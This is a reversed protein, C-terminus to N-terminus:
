LGNYCFALAILIKANIWRRVRTLNRVWGPLHDLGVVSGALRSFVREILTRRAYLAPGFARDPSELMEIARMRAEGKCREDVNQKPNKRPAVMQVGRAAVLGYLETSDYIADGLLYGPGDIHKILERAVTPEGAKMTEVRWAVPVGAADILLFLKYGLAKGGCCYGVTADKVKSYRNIAFGKADVVWCGVMTAAVLVREQLHRLALALLAQVSADRLRRSVRSPSPLPGRWVRPRNRRDCAWCVPKNRLAAWLFVLLIDADGFQQRKGRGPSLEHVMLYLVRCREDDM